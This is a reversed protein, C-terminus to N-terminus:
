LLSIARVYIDANNGIPTSVIYLGPLFNKKNLQDIVTSTNINLDM